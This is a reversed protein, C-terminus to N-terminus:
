KIVEDSLGKKNESGGKETKYMYNDVYFDDETNQCIKKLNKNKSEWVKLLIM